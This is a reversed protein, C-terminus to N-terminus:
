SSKQREIHVWFNMSYEILKGVEPDSVADVGGVWPEFCAYDESDSWVMYKKFQSSSDVWLALQGPINLKIRKPRSPHSRDFIEGEAWNFSGANLTPINTTINGRDGGPVAFYPHFGPAVTMSKRSQNTLTLLYTLSGDGISIGAELKFKEPYFRETEEDSQLVLSVSCPDKRDIAQVIWNLDRAFGHQPLNSLPGEKPPPGAFPFLLPMGGRRKKAGNIDLVRDPYFIDKGGISFEKVMAGKTSILACTDYCSLEIERETSQM